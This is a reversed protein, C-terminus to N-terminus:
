VERITGLMPMTTHSHMVSIIFKVKKQRSHFHGSFVYEQHEFHEAKLDGHDPMQVMANM